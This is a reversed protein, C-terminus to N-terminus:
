LSKVVITGKKITFIHKNCQSREEITELVNDYWAKHTIEYAPMSDPLGSAEEPCVFMTQYLIFQSYHDM